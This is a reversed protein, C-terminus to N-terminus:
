KKQEDPLGANVYTPRAVSGDVIDMETLRDKSSFGQGLKGDQEMEEVVDHIDNTRSCFEETGRRQRELSREESMM